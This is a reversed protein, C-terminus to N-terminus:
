NDEPNNLLEVMKSMTIKEDLFDKYVKRFYSLTIRQQEQMWKAGHKFGYETDDQATPYISHNKAFEEAAKEIAKAKEYRAVQPKVVTEIIHQAKRNFEEQDIKM